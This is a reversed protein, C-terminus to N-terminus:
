GRKEWYGNASHGVWEYGLAKMERKITSVSISLQEALVEKSIRINKQVSTEIQKRRATIKANKLPEDISKLSDNKMKLPENKQIREIMCEHIKTKKDYNVGVLLLEGVYGELAHVYKRRHIQKIATNASKNWKLELM